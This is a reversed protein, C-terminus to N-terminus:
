DDGMSLWMSSEVFAEAHRHRRYEQWDWQSPKLATTENEVKVPRQINKSRVFETNAIKNITRFLLGMLYDVVNPTVTWVFIVGILLPIDFVYPNSM